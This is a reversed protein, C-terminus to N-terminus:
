KTESIISTALLPTLVLLVGSTWKPSRFYRSIHFRIASRSVVAGPGRNAAGWDSLLIRILDVRVSVGLVRRGRDRQHSSQEPQPCHGTRAPPPSM